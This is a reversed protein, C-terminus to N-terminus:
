ASKQRAKEIQSSSPVGLDAFMTMEDYTLELAAIFREGWFKIDNEALVRMISKHRERREELPMSLARAIANAVSESDYPNVLLARECEKAAGAFRSLVLVGPDDANQSAVYEKAVLNMGDRLPTVLGVRASRYLGALVNRGYSQNIYRIPTWSADGHTGNIHGAASSVQKEMELYERIKSRSRPTIQLYTVKEKWGPNAVLFREFAEMREVLGKSYDLRDVGIIMARGVLSENVRRVVASQVAKGAWENMEQTHVGVPFVGLVVTREGASFVRLDRSPLRCEHTLYRAFNLSDTETQFGILNYYTLTSFLQEHNPLATLIEPPPLPIHLFFGIKNQHGRERLMKALPILHYDHVWIIDGPKIIRHLESAFHENVRLYGSLDRRSYEALDLRYHLIPWLVRNAFGNYYERYDEETLDTVVNQRNGADITKTEIADPAVVRGSWGLWIGQYKNFVAELAVELGGARSTGRAPMAVRNSVVILRAL